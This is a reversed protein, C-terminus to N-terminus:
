EEIQVVTNYYKRYVLSSYFYYLLIKNPADGVLRDNLYLKRFIM